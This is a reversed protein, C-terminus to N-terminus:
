SGQKSANSSGALNNFYKFFDSKPSMVIVDQKNNFTDAYANLSRYFAYFEPDQGYAKAYIESAKSDGKARIKQAKTSATAVIIAADADAKAHIAEAEARGDARHKTAVRKREARMREYVAASVEEPLDIRKIRVDSVTIGLRAAGAEAQNKVTTMISERDDAVVEKITRKGFQARLGDNLQQKLLGEAVLSDGGTSTYYKPIDSIYWKAYYDVLVDKKEATVIRSSDIDLTQLRVDFSRVQNIFPLKVHLGPGKITAKGDPSSEIKGLRLVIAQRGESVTYLSSFGLIALIIAIVLIFTFKPSM